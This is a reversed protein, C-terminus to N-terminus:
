HFILALLTNGSFIEGLTGLGLAVINQMNLAPLPGFPFVLFM